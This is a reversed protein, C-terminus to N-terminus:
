SMSRHLRTFYNFGPSAEEGDAIRQILARIELSLFPARGGVPDLPDGVWANEALHRGVHFVFKRRFEAESRAWTVLCSWTM